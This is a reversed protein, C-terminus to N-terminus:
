CIKEDKVEKVINEKVLENLIDKIDNKCNDEDINYEKLILNVIEEFDKKSKLLSKIVYSATENVYYSELNNSNYIVVGEDVQEFELKDNLSYM